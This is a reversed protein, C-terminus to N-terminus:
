ANKIQKRRKAKKNMELIGWIEMLLVMILMYNAGVVFHEGFVMFVVIGIEALLTFRLVSGIRKGKQWPLFPFLWMVYWIQFNTIVGFLFLVLITQLERITQIFTQDKTIYKAWKAVYYIAFIVLALQSIKVIQEYPVKLVVNLILFISQCFKKQQTAIGSLVQLDRVYFLYFGICLLLVMGSWSAVTLIKQKWNKEKVLYFFFFPIFLIAYYKIGIAISLSVIGALKYDKKKFCYLAILVCSVVLIDNHVNSLAELLILPNLGYLLTFKKKKTLQYILYCNMIHLILNLGKMIALGMGLNGLSLKMMWKCLFPWLPGYVITTKEWVAPMRQIIEDQNAEEEQQRLEYVSTYYPNVKYKAESWGTSMYYFVDSSSFPLVLSFCISVGILFSFMKKQDHLLTNSKRLIKGYLICYGLILSGYILVDLIEKHPLDKVLLYHYGTELESISRGSGLYWLSPIAIAISFILIGYLIKKNKREEKEM